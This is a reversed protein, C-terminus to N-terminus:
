LFWHKDLGKLVFLSQDDFHLISQFECAAAQHAAALKMASGNIPNASV